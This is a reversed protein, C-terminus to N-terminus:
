LTILSEAPYNIEALLAKITAENAPADFTIEVKKTGEDAKVSQVGQLEGVETEITHTCHGCSIAPVTYTVTTM